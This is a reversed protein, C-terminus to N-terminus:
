LNRVKSSGLRIIHYNKRSKLELITQSPKERQVKGVILCRLLQVELLNTLYTSSAGIVPHYDGHFNKSLSLYRESSEVM